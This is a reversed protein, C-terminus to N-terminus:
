GERQRGAQESGVLEEQEASGSHSFGADGSWGSTWEKSQREQLASRRQSKGSEEGSKTKKKERTEIRSGSQLAAAAAKAGVRLVSRGQSCAQKLLLSQKYIRTTERTAMAM